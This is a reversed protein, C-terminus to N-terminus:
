ALFLATLAVAWRVCPVAGDAGPRRHQVGGGPHGPQQPGACACPPTPPHRVPPRRLLQRCALLRLRLRPPPRAPEGEPLAIVGVCCRGAARAAVARALCRYGVLKASVGLPIIDVRLWGQVASGLLTGLVLGGLALGVAKGLGARKEERLLYVTAATALALQLGPVDAAATTPTPELLGQALTWAALLGYIAGATAATRQSPPAVAVGGGGGGLGGLRGGLGGLLQQAKQAAPPPPPAAGRRQVDAFRVNTAVPLDGTLRARLQSSFILDYAAEM